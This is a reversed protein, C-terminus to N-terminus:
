EPLSYWLNILLLGHGFYDANSGLFGKLLQPRSLGQEDTGIVTFLLESVEPQLSGNGEGFEPGLKRGEGLILLDNKVTGSAALM